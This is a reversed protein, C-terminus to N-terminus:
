KKLFGSTFKQSLRQAEDLLSPYNGYTKQINESTFVEKIEGYSIIRKNLLIVWDFFKEVTGLDHHVIFISKKEKRLKIFLDILIKETAMDIGAFPEDLFMVEPDQVLARAIFLRQQQGGSLESIQRDKYSQMGVIDLARFTAEYDVKKLRRFLKLKGYRGMLVLEFATIPFNWDVSERQPVYAIKALDKLVISGSVPPIMQLIAKLLTSKGAGNPGVIAVLLGEPIEFSVDWLIPTKDLQINLRDAKLIIKKM